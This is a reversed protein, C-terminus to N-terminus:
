RKRSPVKEAASTPVNILSFTQSVEGTNDFAHVTLIHPGPTQGSVTFSFGPLSSLSIPTLNADDIDWVMQVVQAAPPNPTARGTVTTGNPFPDPLADLGITVSLIGLKGPGGSM